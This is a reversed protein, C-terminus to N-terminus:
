WSLQALDETMQAEDAAQDATSWDDLSALYRAEDWLEFKSGQGILVVKKEIGAYQRLLPKILIRNASDLDVDTASGVMLRKLKKAYANTDPLSTIKAEVELWVPKP